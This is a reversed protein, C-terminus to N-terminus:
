GKGSRGQEMRPVDFPETATAPDAAPAPRGAALWAVVLDYFVALVVPGVFLGILGGVITGCIVGAVIVVMPTQLGRAMVIPRLVNDLLLLPVTYATYIAATTGPFASWVWIIVPIMVLNPGIQLIALVLAAFTIAGAFPVGAVLMGVGLLAAQLLAIGIVGQSVNRITAGAIELFHGGRPGAVREAVRRAADGLRHAHALMVGAIVIAAAFQLLEFVVGAAVGAIWRGLSAIESVHARLLARVNNAADLWFDYIRQGVLPWNRIAEPPHPLLAQTGTLQRAYQDLTEIASAGLMAAPVVLLALLLGALLTAALAQPLHLRRCMLMFLPFAAVALIISWLLIAAIPRLLLMSGYLIAALLALRIVLDVAFQSLQAKGHDDTNM